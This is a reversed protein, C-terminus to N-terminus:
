VDTARQGQANIGAERSPNEQYDKQYLNLVTKDAKACRIVNSHSNEVTVNSLKREVQLKM